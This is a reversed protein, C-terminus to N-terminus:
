RLNKDDFGGCYGQQKFIECIGEKVFNEKDLKMAYDTSKILDDLSDEDEDYVFEELNNNEIIMAWAERTLDGNEYM